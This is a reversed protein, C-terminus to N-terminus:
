NLPERCPKGRPLYIDATSSIKRMYSMFFANTNEEMVEIITKKPFGDLYPEVIDPDAYYMPDIKFSKRPEIGARKIPLIIWDDKDNNKLCDGNEKKQQEEAQKERELHDNVAKKFNIKVPKAKPQNIDLSPFDTETITAIEPVNGPANEPKRLHPPLYAAKSATNVLNGMIVPALTIGSALTPAEPKRM